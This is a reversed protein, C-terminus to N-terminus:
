GRDAEDCRHCRVEVLIQPHTDPVYITPAITRWESDNGCAPCAATYIVDAM